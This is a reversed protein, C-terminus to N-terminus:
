SNAPDYKLIYQETDKSRIVACNRGNKKAEYLADDALNYMVGTNDMAGCESIYIGISVTVNQATKSKAHPINLGSVRQQIQSVVNRLGDIEKEFWLMAFEEGGIRAAYVGTTKCLDNFAGGISRLCDDGKPHGYYDNYNKFFDIDIVALCFYKDSDRYDTLYRQFTQMYDRRNKLQTLEDVTSQNYYSNREEELKGASLAASLKYMAVYWTFILSVVGAIIVNVIDFIWNQPSKILVTSTIFIAMASLTLVLNFVPPNVFLFLACILFGMFTVALKEPNAWVGLYIGFLIVNSYCLIILAYVASKSVHKGLNHRKYRRRSFVALLAAFASVALYIGAKPLDKEFVVPFLMFCFAMVAVVINVTRLSFINRWFIKNMCDIYEDRELTYFRLLYLINRKRRKM